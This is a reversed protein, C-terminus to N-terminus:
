RTLRNYWAPEKITAFIYSQCNKKGFFFRCEKELAAGTIDVLM